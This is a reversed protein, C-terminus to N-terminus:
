EEGAVAGGDAYPVPLDAAHTNMQTAVNSM